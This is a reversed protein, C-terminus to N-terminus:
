TMSMDSILVLTKIRIFQYSEKPNLYIVHIIYVAAHIMSYKFLFKNLDMLIM